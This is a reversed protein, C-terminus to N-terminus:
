GTFIDMEIGHVRERVWANEREKPKEFTMEVIDEEERCATRSLVDGRERERGEREGRGRIKRTTREMVSDICVLTLCYFHCEYRIVHSEPPTSITIVYERVKPSVLV